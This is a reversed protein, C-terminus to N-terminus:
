RPFDPLFISHIHMYVYIYIGLIDYAILFNEYESLSMKGDGHETKQFTVADFLRKAQADVLFIESYDLLKLLYDFDIM